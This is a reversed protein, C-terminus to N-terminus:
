WAVATLDLQGMQNTAGLYNRVPVAGAEDAPTGDLLIDGGLVRDPKWARVLEEANGVSIVCDAEPVWDTLGSNTTEPDAMEAVIVATRIGARECARCTLMTDTHSNGGGDTTIIAANAGLEAAVSAAEAAAREKDEATQEYGRMLVVGAFRLRQGHERYLARVLENRQFFITPNRLAAWHYEGCTIAGDLVEAPDVARPLGAEGAPVGYVYQYYLPGLDSLQLLAVVAPLPRDVEGLEFREVNEPEAALTPSALLEATALTVRRAAAEAEENGAGQAARFTLVVSTMAGFPTLEAAPGALDILSEQEHLPREEGPFDLCTVVAVGALRNTGGDGARGSTPFAARGDPRIRPEVADLVHTIRVAAGPPVVELEVGALAGEDRALADVAEPDAELLRPGYTALEWAM